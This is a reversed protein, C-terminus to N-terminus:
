EGIHVPLRGSCAVTVIGGGTFTEEVMGRGRWLFVITGVGNIANFQFGVEDYRLWLSGNERAFASTSESNNGPQHVIRLFERKAIDTWRAM